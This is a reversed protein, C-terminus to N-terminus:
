WTRGGNLWARDLSPRGVHYGQLFGVGAARLIAADEETEVCEALTAFGFGKALGLLHRIFVQNEPKAALDRVLSGDIKVTDIALSQLHLISTHGAGFDDLAVRCGAHRLANVFRASEDIDNLTATETIEVVLRPGFEPRNRLLLTLSRLWRRDGATLGSVNLGLRVGPHAALERAAADLAFRDILGVLGLKESLKVLESGTTVQGNADRTRLLCEFYDVEGTAASVVPQYAFFLRGERLAARLEAGAALERRSAERQKRTARYRAWGAGGTRTAEALAAQAGAILAAAGAGTKPCAIAGISVTAAVPGAATDVPAATLAQAIRRAAADIQEHPCYALMIGFGDRGLRGTVDSVRLCLDLRRGFEVLLADACEPGLRGIEALGDIALALFACPVGARQNAAAVRDIAERLRATTLHGTLADYSADPGAPEPGASCSGRVRLVGLMRRLQGQADREVRGREEVWVLGGEGDPLRYECRFPADATCHEALHSRRRPLDDAYIHRALDQGTALVATPDLAIGVLRGSWLIADSDLDWLYAADGAAALAAALRSSIADSDVPM